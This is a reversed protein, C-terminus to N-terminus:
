KCLIMKKTQTFESTHLRYFYVGSPYHDANWYCTYSGASLKQKLLTEIERGFIDFVSLSVVSSNPITFEIKTAPNFPNPYNQSLSYQMPLTNLGSLIKTLNPIFLYSDNKSLPKMIKIRYTDGSVPNAATENGVFQVHWTLIQDNVSDKEVFYLEDNRSLYGNGDLEVFIFKTK